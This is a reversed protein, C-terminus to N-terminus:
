NWNENGGDNSDASVFKPVPGNFSENTLSIAGNSKRLSELNARVEEIDPFICTRTMALPKGIAHRFNIAEEGTGCNWKKAFVTQGNANCVVVIKRNMQEMHAEISHGAKINDRVQRWADCLRYLEPTLKVKLTNEFGKETKLADNDIFIMARRLEVAEKFLEDPGYMVSMSPKDDETYATFGRKDKFLDLLKEDEESLTPYELEFGDSEFPQLEPHSFKYEKM